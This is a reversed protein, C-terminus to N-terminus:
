PDLSAKRVPLRGSVIYGVMNDDKMHSGLFHIGLKPIGLIRTPLFPGHLGVKLASMIPAWNIVHKQVQLELSSM